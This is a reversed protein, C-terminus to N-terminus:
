SYITTGRCMTIGYTRILIHARTCMYVQMCKFKRIHTQTHTNTHRQNHTHKFTYTQTYTHKHLTWLM